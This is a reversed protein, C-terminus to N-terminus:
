TRRPIAYTGIAHAVPEAQGESRLEAEAVAL